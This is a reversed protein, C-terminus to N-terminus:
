GGRSAEATGLDLHWPGRLRGDERAVLGWLANWDEAGDPRTDWRVFAYLPAWSALVGRNKPLLSDALAPVQGFRRRDERASRLAGMVTLLEEAHGTATNEQEQHRWLLWGVDRRLYHFDDVDQAKRRYAPWAWFRASIGRHDSRGYVPWLRWTRYEREGLTRERVVLPWPSATSEYGRRQDVTHVHAFLGWARTSREASDRAAFVPFDIRQEEWGYDGLLRRSRIHFPWMVYTTEEQGVIEKRGYFHWVRVGRGLPGGLTSVFPFPFFRREVGPEVLRVYGPFMIATVREWGLFDEEDMYFPLLSFRRGGEPDRHYFFFPLVTTRTTWQEPPPPQGPAHPTGPRPRTRYSFLLFRFSQYDEQWRTSVLPYLIEAGDDRHDGKRQRLWLFPRIRLDRTERTSAFEIFPGLASWRLEGRAEDRAYRFLPWLKVDLAAAPLPLALALLVALAGRLKTV